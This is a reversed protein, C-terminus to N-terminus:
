VHARGIQLMILAMPVFVIFMSVALTRLNLFVQNEAGLWRALALCTGIKAFETPQMQFGGIVIWSQSGKINSGIVLVLVLLSLTFGYLLYALNTYFKSDLLFVFVALCFAACIWMLQKGYRQSFSLISSHEENYVAAYINFWGMMVLIVYLAVTFWDLNALLNVKRIM